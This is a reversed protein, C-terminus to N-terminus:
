IKKYKNKIAERSDLVALMSDPLVTGEEKLSVMTEALAELLKSDIQQYEGERLPAIDPNFTRKM